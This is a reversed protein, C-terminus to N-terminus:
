ECLHAQVSMDDLYYRVTIPTRGFGVDGSEPEAVAGFVNFEPYSSRFSSADVEYEFYTWGTVLPADDSVYAHNYWEGEDYDWFGFAAYDYDIDGTTNNSPDVSAMRYYGSLTITTASEPIEIDQYAYGFSDGTSTAIFVGTGGHASGSAPAGIDGDDGLLWGSSGEFGGNTLLEVSGGLPVSECGTAECTVTVCADAGYGPCASDQFERVCEGNECTEVSCEVGDDDCDEHRACEVCTGDDCIPADGGCGGSYHCEGDTCTDVNCDNGDDCDNGSECGLCVAEGTTRCQPAGEPCGTDRATGGVDDICRACEAAGAIGNCVGDACETGATVALFQCEGEECSETTCENDDECDADIDCPVPEDDGGDDSAEVEYSDLGLVLGCGGGLASTVLM